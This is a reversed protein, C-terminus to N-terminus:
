GNVGSNALWDAYLANPSQVADKAGNISSVTMCTIAAALADASVTVTSEGDTYTVTGVKDLLFQALGATDNAFDKPCDKVNPDGDGNFFGDVASKSTFTPLVTAAFKASVANMVRVSTADLKNQFTM